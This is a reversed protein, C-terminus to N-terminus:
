RACGGEHAPSRCGHCLLAKPRGWVVWPVATAVLEQVLDEPMGAPDDAYPSDIVWVNTMRSCAELVGVKTQRKRDDFLGQYATWGAQDNDLWFLLRDYRGLLTIQRETIDAGFTATFHTHHDHRIVSFPSEVVVAERRAPDYNFLTQDKPFAPTSKYKPTGDDALRRSQWGVLRGQWFHPLVIRESPPAPNDKTGMPYREAYGIQFRLYNEEPVGRGGEEIPDTVYPHIFRWPDLTHESYTPLPARQARGAYLADFYRLLAALDMVEGDTGTEKALWDRAETASSQRHEAIFWLLGGSRQCGLCKYTLKLYNLAGTPNADQDQHDGLTCPIILEGRHEATAKVPLGFEELLERCLRAKEAEPLMKVEFPRTSM